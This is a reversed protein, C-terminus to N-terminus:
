DARLVVKLFSKLNFLNFNKLEGGTSRSSFSSGGEALFSLVVGANV